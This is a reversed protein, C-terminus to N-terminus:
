RVKPGKKEGQGVVKNRGKRKAAYLNADAAKVLAQSSNIRDTPWTAVGISITVAIKKGEHKFLTTAVLKRLREATQLASRKPTERMLLAFEEGGYRALFDDARLREQLLTGLKRLVFDGALHGYSDNIKKFRDIDLMALSLPKDHREAFAFESPLRELFHSKNYCNTLPDRTASEYQHRQFDEELSDQLSFKIITTTGIQIRDGDQLVHSDVREGNCFTGNTSKLDVIAVPGEPHRVIKAHLRSVGDDDIRISANKARGIMAEGEDLKYMAGTQKGAIVVFCASRSEDRRLTLSEFLKRDIARTEDEFDMKGESRQRNLAAM